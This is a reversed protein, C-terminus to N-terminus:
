LYKMLIDIDDRSTAWDTALRIVTHNDDYKEWFSYGVNEDLEKLKDNDIIIFQQNTPSDLFLKYGKAKLGERLLEAMEIANKSISFYLDDTF